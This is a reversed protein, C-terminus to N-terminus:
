HLPDRRIAESVQQPDIRWRGLAHNYVMREDRSVRGDATIAAACLRCVLLRTSEDQVADLLRDVYVLDSSRLWSHDQLGSGVEAICRQALEVFRGRSVGLRAFADLRELAALEQDDIQGNAAVMLALVQAAASGDSQQHTPM